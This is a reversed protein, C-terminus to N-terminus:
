LHYMTRIWEFLYLNEIKESSFRLVAPVLERICFESSAFKLMFKYINILGTYHGRCILIKCLHMLHTSIM